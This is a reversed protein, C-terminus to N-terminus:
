KDEKKTYDRQRKFNLGRLEWLETPDYNRCEYMVFKPDMKSCEYDMFHIADGLHEGFNRMPMWQHGEINAEVIYGQKTERM